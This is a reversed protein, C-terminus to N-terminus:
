INGYIAHIAILLFPKLGITIAVASIIAILGCMAKIAIAVIAIAPKAVISYFITL